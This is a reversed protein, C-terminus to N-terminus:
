LLKLCSEANLIKFPLDKFRSLFHRNESILIEAGVWETYAGIFADATKLGKTEYNAGLEFPVLFDEDITTITHIIAVFEKFVIPSLNRKVEETIMRPISIDHKPISSIIKDLLIECAPKRISGLSFIYENSDLVLLM